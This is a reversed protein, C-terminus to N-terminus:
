RRARAWSLLGVRMSRGQLIGLGMGALFYWLRTIVNESM